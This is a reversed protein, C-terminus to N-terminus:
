EFLNDVYVKRFKGMKPRLYKSSIGTKCHLKKYDFIIAGTSESGTGSTTPLAILPKLAVNVEKGKGIPKNVYDLFDAENDCSYLNAAKCTDIVSGGGIAVFCDFDKSRAFKVANTLSEDTPEVRTQDYVDFEIDYKKLSDFATKVSALKVVNRDTIVAVNKTGANRLDAGLEASVGPGFRVTSSSM